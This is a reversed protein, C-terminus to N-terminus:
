SSVRYWGFVLKLAACLGGMVPRVLIDCPDLSGSMKTPLALSHRSFVYSIECDLSYYSFQAITSEDPRQGYDAM